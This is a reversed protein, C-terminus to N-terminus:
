LKKRLEKLRIELFRKEKMIQRRESVGKDYRRLATRFYKMEHKSAASKIDSLANKVKIEEKEKLM